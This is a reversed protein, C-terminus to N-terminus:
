EKDDKKICYDKQFMEAYLENGDKDLYTRKGNEVIYAAQQKLNNDLKIENNFM